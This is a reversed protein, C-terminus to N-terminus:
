DDNSDGINKKPVNPFDNVRKKHNPNNLEDYVPPFCGLLFIALPDNENERLYRNIIEYIMYACTNFYNNQSNQAHIFMIHLFILGYCSIRVKKNQFAKILYNLQRKSAYSAMNEDALTPQFDAIFRNVEKVIFKKTRGRFVINQKEVYLVIGEYEKVNKAVEDILIVLDMKPIGERFDKGLNVYVRDLVCPIKM